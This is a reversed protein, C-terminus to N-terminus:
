LSSQWSVQAERAANEPHFVRLLTAKIERARPHDSGGHHHLWNEARLAKFIELAPRTGFELSKATVEAKPIEVVYPDSGEAPDMEDQGSGCGFAAFVAAVLVLLSRAGNTM